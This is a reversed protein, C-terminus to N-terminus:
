LWGSFRQIDLFIVFLMLGLIMFLGAYTLVIQIKENPPHRFIGEYALFVMHGGDLVPIPLFNVIALNASLLVLFLLLRSTGQTAESTAAAAIMGPGGLNKPSIQGSVLKGLFKFVRSADKVTQQYGFKFADSWNPSQYTAKMLSLLVGRTPLFYGEVNKTKAKGEVEKGGEGGRVAVVDFAFGEPLNQILNQISPWGTESKVLDIEANSAYKEFIEANDKSSVDFNINSVEDGSEIGAIESSAVIRTSEIAIGLSNIAVPQNNELRAFFTPMRPTISLEVTKGDRLIELAVTSQTSDADSSIGDRAIKTMRQELTFLSGPSANNIKVIQDGVQIGVDSAPSSRQVAKIPGWKMVLGSSRMTNRDVEIDVRETADPEGREVVFKLPKDFNAALIKKLDFIDEVPKGAMEVIKDNQEFSPSASFAPHGEIFISDDSTVVPVTARNIGVLALDLGERLGKRPTVAVSKVEDSDPETYEITIEQEGGSLAIEQALDMFPFYEKVESDGVKTVHAGYLNAEWAPGGPVVDGVIPPDYEVGSSFAVAAFIVASILNFVVGASIIAMRQPVSKALFSRPDMVERDLVGLSESKGEEGNAKSRAIEQEMNGPNDDQGLMKVYGGLPVIGVGYETEGWQFKVLSRPILVLDGIKIDFFDFGIYFKECKVGCAKAVLFHGLEHVFIVLGLGICVQAIAWWSEPNTWFSSQAILMCDM